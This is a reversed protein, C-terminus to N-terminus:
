WLFISRLIADICVPTVALSLLDKFLDFLDKGLVLLNAVRVSKSFSSVAWKLHLPIRTTSSLSPVIRRLNNKCAIVGKSM